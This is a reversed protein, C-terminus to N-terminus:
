AEPLMSRLRLLARGHIQCVRSESVELISGIERLNLQQDYYLSMVLKEREPLQEVAGAVRAKTEGAEIVSSPNGAHEPSAPPAGCEIMEELSFLKSASADQLAQHYDRLGLGLREAIETDRANRGLETELDRIARGIDREMRSVSRPTWNCRRLEDLMSGRIRKHAYTDFSAGQSADYKQYADLLGLMGAQVLDEVQVSDPLRAAMHFAARRVIPAYHRAIRELALADDGEFSKQKATNLAAM